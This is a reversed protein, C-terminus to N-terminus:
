RIIGELTQMMDNITSVLRATIGYNQQLM